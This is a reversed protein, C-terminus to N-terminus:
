VVVVSLMGGLLTWLKSVTCTRLSPRAETQNWLSM